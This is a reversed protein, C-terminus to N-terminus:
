LKPLLKSGSNALAFLIILKGHVQYLHLLSGVYFDDYTRDCLTIHFPVSVEAFLLCPCMQTGLLLGGTLASICTTQFVHLPSLSGTLLYADRFVWLLVQSLFFM